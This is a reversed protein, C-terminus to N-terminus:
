PSAASRDEAPARSPRQAILAGLAVLAAGAAQDWRWDAGLLSFLGMVFFPAANIYIAALAIGLRAVGILWFLQSLAMAGLAYLALHAWGIQDLPASPPGSFGTWTAVSFLISCFVLGGALTITTRGMPSQAALERVAARSAWAFAVVSLLALLAGVGYAGDTMQAGSAAVGGALALAIGLTLPWTLRRGDLFVELAAGVIPMTTAIIAVSIPDSLAQGALMLFAGIGFGIGGVAVGRGWHASMPARLGEQLAWVTLLVSVALALRATTLALPDWTELLIEASPFGAAWLLMSLTLIGNASGASRMRGGSAGGAPTM